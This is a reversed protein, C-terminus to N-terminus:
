VACNLTIKEQTYNDYKSSVHTFPLTNNVEDVKPHLHDTEHELPKLATLVTV